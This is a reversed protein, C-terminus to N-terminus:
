RTENTTLRGGDVGLSRGVDDLTKSNKGKPQVAEWDRGEPLDTEKWEDATLYCFDTNGFTLM